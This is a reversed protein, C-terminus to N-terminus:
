NLGTASARPYGGPIHLNSITVAESKQRTLVSPTETAKCGTGQGVSVDSRTTATKKETNHSSDAARQERGLVAEAESAYQGDAPLLPANELRQSVLPQGGSNHIGADPNTYSPLTSSSASVRSGSIHSPAAAGNVTTSVVTTSPIALSSLGDYPQPDAVNFDNSQYDFEPRRYQSSVGNSTM